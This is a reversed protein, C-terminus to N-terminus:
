SKQNQQLQKHNNEKKCNRRIEDPFYTGSSEPGNCSHPENQEQM